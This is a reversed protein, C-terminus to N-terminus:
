RTVAGPPAESLRRYYEDVLARQHAAVRPEDAALLAQSEDEDLGARLSREADQLAAILAEHRRELTAADLDGAAEGLAALARLV